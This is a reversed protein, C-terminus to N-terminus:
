RGRRRRPQRARPRPAPRWRPQQRLAGLWPARGRPSVGAPQARQARARLDSLVRQVVSRADGHDPLVRVQRHGAAPVAPVTRRPRRRLHRLARTRRSRTPSRRTVSSTWSAGGCRASAPPRPSRGIAPDRARRHQQVGGPRALLAERKKNVWPMFDDQAWSNVREMTSRRSAAPLPHARFEAYKYEALYFLAESAADKAEVM